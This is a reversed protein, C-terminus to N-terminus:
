PRDNGPMIGSVKDRIRELLGPCEPEPEPQMEPGMHSVMGIRIDKGSEMYALFERQLRLGLREEGSGGNETQRKWHLGRCSDDCFERPNGAARATNMLRGCDNCRTVNLPIDGDNIADMVAWLTRVLDSGFDNVTVLPRRPDISAPEAYRHKYNLSLGESVLGDLFFRLNKRVVGDFQRPTEREDCLRHVIRGCGYREEEERGSGQRELTLPVDFVEAEYGQRGFSDSGPNDADSGCSEFWITYRERAVDIAVKADGGVGGDSAVDADFVEMHCKNRVRRFAGEDGKIAMHLEIADRFLLGMQYLSDVDPIVYGEKSLSGREVDSFTGAAKEAALLLMGEDLHLWERESRLCGEDASHRDFAKGDSAGVDDKKRIADKRKEGLRKYEELLREHERAFDSIGGFDKAFSRLDKLFLRESTKVYGRDNEVYLGEQRLLRVALEKARETGEDDEPSPQIYKGIWEKIEAERDGKYTPSAFRLKGTGISSKWEDPGSGDSRMHPLGFRDVFRACEGVLVKREVGRWHRKADADLCGDAKWAYPTVVEAINAIAVLADVANQQLYDSVESKNTRRDPSGEERGGVFWMVAQGGFTNGLGNGSAHFDANDTLSTCLHLRKYREAKEETRAAGTEEISGSGTEM